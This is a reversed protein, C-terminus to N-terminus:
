EVKFSVSHLGSAGNPHPRTRVKTQVEMDGGTARVLVNHIGGGPQIDAAWLRWAVPSLERKLVAPRWSLGQDESIEVSLIRRDGAWAIGALKSSSTVLANDFPVDIRSGTKVHAVDSWGRVMWYGQYNRNVAEIDTLWKVNKMGYIGVVIIRAPFGHERPLAEGNMGFVVLTTKEIAKALPISDTYGEAGTFVLDVVGPKLAARELVDKLRVGRWIATSILDGGIENSICTLTHAMEVVEFQSQLERYSLEFPREVMGHIKLLWTDHDVRPKSFPHIDVNYFNAIPTIEASLGAVVPFSADEAPPVFAIDADVLEVDVPTKSGMFRLMAAGGFVVGGIAALARVVFRRRSRQVADLPTEQGSVIPEFASGLRVGAVMRAFILASSIYLLAALVSAGEPALTALALAILVFVGSLALARKAKSGDTTARNVHNSCLGGVAATALTVGIALGTIAGHGLSEIMWTALDGPTITILMSAVRAPPFAVMFFGGVTYITVLSVGMAFFGNVFARRRTM